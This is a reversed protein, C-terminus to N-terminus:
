TDRQSGVEIHGALEDREALIPRQDRADAKTEHAKSQGDVSGDGAVFFAELDEVTGEFEAACMPVSRLSHCDFLSELGLFQGDRVAEVAVGFGEDAFPESAGVFPGLDEDCGFKAEDFATLSEFRVAGVLEADIRAVLAQLLQTHLTDIQVIHVM